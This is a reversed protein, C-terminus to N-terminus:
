MVFGGYMLLMGSAQSLAASETAGGVTWDCGTIIAMHYTTDYQVEYGLAEAVFRIPVMTRGHSPRITATDMMKSVGNVIIERSGVPMRIVTDGKRIDVVGNDWVVTAGLREAVFRVPIMTRGAGNIYAYVDPEGPYIATVNGFAVAARNGIQLFLTDAVLEDATAAPQTPKTVTTAGGSSPSGSESGKDSVSGGTGLDAPLKIEYSAQMTEGADLIAGGTPMGEVWPETVSQTALEISVPATGVKKFHFTFVEMGSAGVNAVGGIEEKGDTTVASGPTVYGTFEILGSATDLSTGITAMWDADDATVAFDWFKVAAAGGSTVPEVTDPDYRLAFSFVNFRANYLTLTLDFCGGADAATAEFVAKGEPEAAAAVTGWPLCLCLALLLPLVRKRM